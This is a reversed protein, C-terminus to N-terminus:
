LPAPWPIRSEGISFSQEVTKGLAEGGGSGYFYAEFFARGAQTADAGDAALPHVVTVTSGTSSSPAHQWDRFTDDPLRVLVRVTAVSAPAVNGTSLTLSVAIPTRDGAYYAPATM